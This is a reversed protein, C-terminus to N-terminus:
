ALRAPAGRGHACARSPPQMSACWPQGRCACSRTNWTSHVEGTCCYIHLAESLVRGLRWCAAGSRRCGRGRVQRGGSVVVRAKAAALGDRPADRILGEAVHQLQVDREVHVPAGPPETADQLSTRPLCRASILVIIIAHECVGSSSNAADPAAVHVAPLACICERECVCAIRARAPVRLM